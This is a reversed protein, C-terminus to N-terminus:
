KVYSKKLDVNIGYNWLADISDFVYLIFLQSNLFSLIIIEGVPRNRVEHQQHESNREEETATVNLCVKTTQQGCVCMCLSLSLSDCTVFDNRPKM